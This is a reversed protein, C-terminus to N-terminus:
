YDIVVLKFWEQGNEYFSFKGLISVSITLLYFKVQKKLCDDNM